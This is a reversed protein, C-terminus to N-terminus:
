KIESEKCKLTGDKQLKKYPNNVGPDRYLLFVESTNYDM